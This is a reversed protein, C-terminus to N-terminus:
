PAKVGTGSVPGFTSALFQLGGSKGKAPVVIAAERQSVERISWYNGKAVGGATYRDQPTSITLHYGQEILDLELTLNSHWVTSTFCLAGTKSAVCMPAWKTASFSDTEAADGSSHGFFERLLPTKAWGAPVAVKRSAAGQTTLWSKNLAAPSVSLTSTKLTPIYGGKGVTFSPLPDGSYVYPESVVRWRDKASAKRFLLLQTDKSTKGATVQHYEAVFLAPYSTQRPVFVRIGTGFFAAGHPLAVHKAIHFSADDMYAASGSELTDQLATDYHANAKNNPPFYSTVLAKAQAPTIVVAAASAPTATTLSMGTLTLVSLVSLV